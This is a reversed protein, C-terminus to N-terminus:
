KVIGTRLQEALLLFVPSLTSLIYILSKEVDGKGKYTNEEQHKECVVFIM